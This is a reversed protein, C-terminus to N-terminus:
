RRGRRRIFWATMFGAGFLMGYYALTPVHVDSFLGLSRAAVIGMPAEGEGVKRASFPLREAIEEPAIGSTSKVRPKRYRGTAPIVSRPGEFYEYIGREWDFVSYVNGNTSSVHPARGLPTVGRIGADMTGPSDGVPVVLKAKMSNIMKRTDRNAVPDLTIPGHPTTVEVFVHSFAPTGGVVQFAAIVFNVPNGALTLLTALLTAIDDCDGSGSRLTEEPTKVLEIGDIDRMYRVRQKVFNNIALVEGTYDGEALNACIKEVLRRLAINRRGRVVLAKMAKVTDEMTANTKHQLVTM